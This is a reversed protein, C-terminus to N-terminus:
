EHVLLIAHRALIIETGSIYVTTEFEWKIENGNNEIFLM